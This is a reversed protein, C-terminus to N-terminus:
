ACYLTVIRNAEEVFGELHKEFNKETALVYKIIVPKKLHVQYIYKPNRDFGPNIPKTLEQVLTIEFKKFKEYNSDRYGILIKMPKYLDLKPRWSVAYVRNKSNPSKKSTLSSIVKLGIPLTL